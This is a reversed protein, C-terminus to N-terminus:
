RTQSNANVFYLISNTKRVVVQFIHDATVHGEDTKQKNEIEKLTIVELNKLLENISKKDHFTMKQKDPWQGKHGFLHFAFVGGLKLSAIIKEFTQDFKEPSIFPLAFMAM